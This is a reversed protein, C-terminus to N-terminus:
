FFCFFLVWDRGSNHLHIPLLALWFVKRQTRSSKFFVSDLSSSFTAKRAANKGEDPIWQPKATHKKRSGKGTRRPIVPSSTGACKSSLLRPRLKLATWTTLVVVCGRSFGKFMWYWVLVFHGRSRTDSASEKFDEASMKESFLIGLDVAPEPEPHREYSSEQMAYRQERSLQLKNNKVLMLEVASQPRYIWCVPYLESIQRKLFVDLCHCFMGLSLQKITFTDVAAHVFAASSVPAHSDQIIVFAKCGCHRNM